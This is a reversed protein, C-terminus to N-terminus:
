EHIPANVEIDWRKCQDAQWQLVYFQKYQIAYAQLKLCEIQESADEAKVGSYVIGVLVLVFVLSYIIKEM